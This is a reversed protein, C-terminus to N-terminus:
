LIHAYAFPTMDRGSIKQLGFNVPREFAGCLLAQAVVPRMHCLLMM